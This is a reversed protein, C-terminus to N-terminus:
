SCDCNRPRVKGAGDRGGASASIFIDSNGTNNLINNVLLLASGSAVLDGHEQNTYYVKADGLLSLSKGYDILSASMLPVTQDGNIFVQDKHSVKEGFLKM